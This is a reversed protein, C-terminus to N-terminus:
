AFIKRIASTLNDRVVPKMIFDKIGYLGATEKSIFESYGSVLILPLDPRIRFIAEALEIGTMDPMTMDTIILDMGQPNLRFTELADRSSTKITVNYGLKELMIKLMGAIQPEDDVVMIKESGGDFPKSIKIDNNEAAAAVVPLFVQFVSGQGPESKVIIKGKHERIIGDVVALGLGTGEGIGKTTFYPDFIKSCVNKDMGTGTDSVSLVAFREGSNEMMSFDPYPGTKSERFSIELVGGTEKMAYFANTCLNMLVQHIQTPDAMVPGVDQIDQRIEITTPIISRILKLAEKLVIHIKLPKLKVFTKRSFALIQNVLEKARDTAILIENLNQWGESGPLYEDMMIETYGVIPFLINNFDHAIGGALIGIAEMKQSQRLQEELEKIREIEKKLNINLKHVEKKQQQLTIHTTIRSLVEERHFPKTIFDVAGLSFGKIKYETETLASLFIVPIDKTEENEKLIRCTEFGDIGPMMIDLLIIDPKGLKAHKIGQQGNVAVLINLSSKDLLDILVHLNAPNDDVILITLNSPNEKNM